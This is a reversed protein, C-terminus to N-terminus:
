RLMVAGVLNNGLHLSTEFPNPDQRLIDISEMTNGARAIDDIDVPIHM